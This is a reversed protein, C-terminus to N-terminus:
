PLEQFVEPTGGAATRAAHLEAAAVSRVPVGPPAGSGAASPAPEPGRFLLQARVDDGSTFTIWYMADTVIAGGADRGDWVISALGGLALDSFLTRVRRGGLDLVAITIPEIRPVEFYVTTTDPSPNPAPYLDGLAALRLTDRVVLDQNVVTLKETTDAIAGVVRTRAIYGGPGLGSFKYIGKVTTTVGVIRSGFALEVQVGDANGVVKTGAFHGSAQTLYGTLKVHGEISYLRPAEPSTSCGAAVLVAVLGALVWPRYRPGAPDSGDRRDPRASRNWAM